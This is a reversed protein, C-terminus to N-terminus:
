NNLKTMWSFLGRAREVGYGSDTLMKDYERAYTAIKHAQDTGNIVRRAGLFDSTRLTMFDGLKRGTFWGEIMGRILINTSVEPELTRDPNTILDIGLKKGAQVYNGKWTLQVFGRGYWPYYRLNNKRWAEPLWYAEVVPEFTNNTEHKVTALIYALQNRLVGQKEAEEVIMNSYGVQYAEPLTYKSKPKFWSFM